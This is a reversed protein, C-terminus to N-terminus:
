WSIQRAEGKHYLSVTLATKAVLGPVREPWEICILNKKDALLEEWGLKILESEHVLRYADIHILNSFRAGLLSRRPISYRKLIVFTPSQVTEKIGTKKALAQVLSTKGAGLDGSLTVLTAYELEKKIIYSLLTRAIDPLESITFSKKM